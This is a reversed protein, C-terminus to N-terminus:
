KSGSFCNVSLHCNTQCHQMLSKHSSARKGVLIDELSQHHINGLSSLSYYPCHCLDGNSKIILGETGVPCQHHVFRKPNDLYRIFLDFQSFPNDISFGKQKLNKLELIVKKIEGDSSPWLFGESESQYWEENLHSAFPQVVINFYIGKLFSHEHILHALPIMEHYNLQSIVTNIHVELEPFLKEILAIREWVLDFNKPRLQNHTHATVGELPLTLVTLGARRLEDIRSASLLIGNTVVQSQFGLSTCLEIIGNLNEDLLPEAGALVIKYPLEVMRSYEFLFNRVELYYSPPIPVKKKWNYCMSCKLNCTESLTICLSNPPKEWISKTDLPSQDAFLSTMRDNSEQFNLRFHCNSSCNNIQEAIEEFSPSDPKQNSPNKASCHIFEGQSDLITFIKSKACGTNKIGPSFQGSSKEELIQRFYNLQYLSNQITNTSASIEIIKRITGMPLNTAPHGKFNTQADRFKALKSPTEPAWVSFVLFDILPHDKVFKTLSLLNHKNEELFHAHIVTAIEPRQKKILEFCSLIKEPEEGERLKLHLDRETSELYFGIRTLGSDLVRQCSTEDLLSANTCLFLEFANSLKQSWIVLDNRILSRASFNIKQVEALKHNRGNLFDEPSCDMREGLDIM